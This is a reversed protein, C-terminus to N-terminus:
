KITLYVISQIYCLNKKEVREKLYRYVAFLFGAIGCIADLDHENILVM